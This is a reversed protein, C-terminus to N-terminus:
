HTYKTWFCMCYNSYGQFISTLSVSWEVIALYKFFYLPIYHHSEDCILLQNENFSEYKITKKITVASKMRLKYIENYNTKTRFYLPLDFSTLNTLLTVFINYTFYPYLFHCDFQILSLKLKHHYSFNQSLSILKGKFHKGSFYDLCRTSYCIM